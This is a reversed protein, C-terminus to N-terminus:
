AEGLWLCFLSCPASSLHGWNEESLSEQLLLGGRSPVFGPVLLVPPSLLAHQSGTGVSCLLFPPGLLSLFEDLIMCTLGVDVSSLRSSGQRVGKHEERCLRYCPVSECCIPVSPRVPTHSAPIFALGHSVVTATEDLPEGARSHEM